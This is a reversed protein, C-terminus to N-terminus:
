AFYSDKEIRYFLQGPLLFRFTLMALALTRWQVPFEALKRGGMRMIKRGRLGMMKKTKWTAATWFPEECM